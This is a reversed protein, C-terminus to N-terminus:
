SLRPLPGVGGRSPRWSSTIQIPRFCWPCQDNAGLWTAGLWTAGMSMPTLSSKLRIKLSRSNDDSEREDPDRSESSNGKFSVWGRLLFLLSDNSFEGGLDGVNMSDRVEEAWTGARGDETWTGAGGDEAEAEAEAEAWTGARGDETWTGARGDESEAEAEAESEAEAEAEAWTGAEGDESETEAEAEAWTGAEGDEAGPVGGPVGMSRVCDEGEERVGEAMSTAQLNGDAM